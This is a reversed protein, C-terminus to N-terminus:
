KNKRKNKKRRRDKWEIRKKGRLAKEKKAKVPDPLSSGFIVGPPPAFAAEEQPPLKEKSPTKERLPHKKQEKEKKRLYAEHRAVRQKREKLTFEREMSLLDKRDNWEAYGQSIERARIELQETNLLGALWQDNMSEMGFRLGLLGGALAGMARARKGQNIVELLGSGFTKSSLVTYVLYCIAGPAFDQNVVSIPFPPDHRNGEAVITKRILEPNNEGLCPRIISLSDSVAYYADPSDQPALHKGYHDQLFEEGKRTYAQLSVLFDEPNGIIEGPKEALNAALHSYAVAAAIARPDNHTLLTTEIAARLLGEPNERFFLSLPFCRTLCTIGPHNLAGAFVGPETKLRKMAKRNTEDMGRFVPKEGQEGVFSSLSDHIEKLDFHSSIILSDAVVLAQQTPFSYLGKLSWRSPSYRFAEDPDLFDELRHFLQQIRPPKLGQGPSGLADGIAMGLFGAIYHEQKMLDRRKRFKSIIEKRGM